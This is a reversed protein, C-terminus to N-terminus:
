DVVEISVDDVWLTGTGFCVIGFYIAEQRSGVTLEIEQRTWESNGRVSDDYLDYYENSQALDPPAGHGEVWLAAWGDMDAGRLWASIRICRGRYPEASVYQHLSMSHQGIDPECEIVCGASGSRAAEESVRMSYDDCFSGVKIWGAHGSEFGLNTPEDHIPREGAAPVPDTLLETGRVDRVYFLLDAHSPLSLRSSMQLSGLRRPATGSCGGLCRLQHTRCMWRGAEGERDVARLDLGFAALDTSHFAGEYYDEAIHPAPLTVPDENRAGQCYSTGEYLTFGAIVLDDGHRERLLSGLHFGGVGMVHSNHAWVVMKSADGGLRLLADVNDAMDHDRRYIADSLSYRTMFQEGQQAVGLCYLAQELAYQSTAAVLDSRHELMWDVVSQLKRGCPTWEVPRGNSPALAAAKYENHRYIFGLLCALQEALGPAGQPAARGLYDVVYQLAVFPSQMDFGSFSLKEEEAASENYECMWEVLDVMEQTSALFMQFVRLAEEASRAGEGSRVYQNVICAEAAGMEFAITRFGMEEVLFRFIRHKLTYFEHTGHTAEGLAVIRASGVADRLFSLDGSHGGLEVTDLVHAEELLWETVAAPVEGYAGAAVSVGTLPVIVYVLLALIGPTRSAYAMRGGRSDATHGLMTEGEDCGSTARFTFDPM